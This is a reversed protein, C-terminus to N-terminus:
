ETVEKAPKMDLSGLGFRRYIIPLIMLTLLTSTMLGGIVVIALPRQIESGPGTALVLPVLGLAAISATMLVPRLRRLAGEVVAESIALGNAILQNFYSIMVVGNLVAIGLLAIFGVSAPVSLYEGTIWLALIGGILAFPINVLVMLAQTMSQFTSFLIIFILVLAIPVVVGLKAAARQQNEFQGGWEFYYGAPVNMGAAELKADEVFSVLDRGSVNAIVTAYRKGQERSVSVPGSIEEADVLQNLLVTRGDALSIPQQLMEIKSQKTTEPGRIILPTQRIGEYIIGVPLGEVQTRLLEEVDSVTLGLRGAMLRNVKLQLYRSGENRPTYVDVAGPLTKVREVLTDALQNLTGQSEGFIKIAIDGRAGTLMEDVRMQIPQTFAFNIGPFQQEMVTRIADILEEKTDMRWEDKPKLVMFNDTDNLSMPDLGLEDSGVRTVIRTIEPVEAMLKKQIRLDMRVTEKLGISPIKEVQLIINGEDMQPMFTKGVQTYVFGAFALAGVALGIVLKDHALSWMLAPRYVGTLKRILWPEQHSPKGLIFSALTPIVTLSLLLSSGLAFIITLAVPVFLKGELGELTLLPLFVTMIILIGSVVPVMVEQLARYILHLKPLGARDKEQTTVINEVVVVAADVLMGVAIALGGLSMLNASLGYLNMLIFTMLASLPLILAVTVAARINGLFLLLVLVVLIVAEVLAKSVTYIARDVLASRSYFPNISIGQPLAPKLEELRDTVGQIVDKANAGRLAIVLGQVAESEGNTTVAGNRYLSDIKVDALDKVTVSVENQYSVEINEIDEVSTLNGETRVLLVEEGQNLRGAGDNQNNQRVADALESLTIEYAQLKEFNPQVSFVKVFGGLSNVDAVGPVSRLAPRIVWDLLGRKEQNNLTDGDITFMFVDSLPTSLPSIGGSVGAPLDVNGLREAVQQRAWYVDTGEEFDLTIDAIAYKALSRLSTQNPIGLLEMELPAIIRQEVENPTMGPAKLIIKVQVPSVDPFADIPTKQFAMWGGSVIGFILLVVLMRQTLFFQVIRNM